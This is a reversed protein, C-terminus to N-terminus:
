EYYKNLQEGIDILMKGIKPLEDDKLRVIYEDNGSSTNIYLTTETNSEKIFTLKFGNDTHITQELITM